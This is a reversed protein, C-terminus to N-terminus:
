NVAAVLRKITAVDPTATPLSIWDRLRGDAGYVAAIVAAKDGRIPRGIAGDWDLVVSASSDKPFMSRIFGRLLRPAGQLDAIAVVLADSTPLSERLSQTWREAAAAGSRGAVILISAQRRLSEDTMLRNFQDTLRYAPLRDPVPKAGGRADQARLAAPFLVLAVSLRRWWQGSM